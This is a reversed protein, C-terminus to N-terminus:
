KNLFILLFEHFTVCNGGTVRNCKEVETLHQAALFDLSYTFTQQEKKEEKNNVSCNTASELIEM